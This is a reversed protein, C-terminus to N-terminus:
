KGSKVAHKKNLRKLYKCKGFAGKNYIKIKIHKQNSRQNYRM